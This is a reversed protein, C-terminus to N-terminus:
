PTKGGGFFRSRGTPPAAKDAEVRENALEALTGVIKEFQTMNLSLKGTTADVTAAYTDLTQSLKNTAEDVNSVYQNFEGLSDDTREATAGLRSTITSLHTDFDRFTMQIGERCDSNFKDMSIRLREDLSKAQNSSTTLLETTKEIQGQVTAQHAQTLSTLSEVQKALSTSILQATKGLSEHNTDISQSMSQLQESLTQFAALAASLRGHMEGLKGLSQEFLEAAQSSNKIMADQKDSTEGLRVLIADLNQKTQEQWACLNEITDALNDFQERMREGMIDGFREIMQEMGQVQSESSLDAVKKVVEGMESIQPSLHSEISENLGEVVKTAIDTGMVKIADKEEIAVQLSIRWADSDTLTPHSKELLDILEHICQDILRASHRDLLAWLLALSIGLISTWFGTTMGALLTFVAPLLQEVTKLSDASSPATAPVVVPTDTPAAQTPGITSQSVSPAATAPDIRDGFSLLGISLGIFTGLIGLSTLVGPMSRVAHQNHGPPLLHARNFYREPDVTSALGSGKLNPVANDRWDIEFQSLSVGLREGDTEIKQLDGALSRLTAGDITESEDADTLTNLTERLRGALTHSPGLLRLGAILFVGVIIVTGIVAAENTLINFFYHTLADPLTALSISLVTM